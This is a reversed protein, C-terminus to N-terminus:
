RPGPGLVLGTYAVAQTGTRTFQITLTVTAGAGISGAEKYPSGAPMTASTYGSPQVMAVGAPLSEAVYAAATLAAGNNTLKVTQSYVGSVRNLTVASASVSVETAVNDPVSSLYTSWNSKATAAFAQLQSYDGGWTTYMLGAVGPIGAAQQLEQAAAAAGNGSDYYGAIIQRYPTPQQANRGSFWNLSNALNSLNWNMITVNAPVGTWSGTLNGEVYYYNNVANQYPDFMDNWVYLLASPALTHYLNTTNSVHWALLQGPTMNKAKCSACSDMHRMEDYSLLYNMGAPMNSVINQANTQLFNQAGTETLCMGVDGYAAIPQVAYYNMAVTQGPQLSTTSPLTVTGPSHYFNDFVGTAQLQPDAIPNFDSGEQYVASPNAPNYATLPTGPRRLVYVLSTEEVLVDDFWISGSSGGWVGFLLSPQTTGRSNFTFDLETWDQTSAQEIPTNFCLTNTSPDWVEIQSYGSFNATKIWIRAHYQRWPTVNMTQAFRANGAANTIYGAASGSHVVTTEVGMNSDEYGFWGTLGSEFGPNVLGGFSNVPALATKTANVTFQSGILQEGEAWNPNTILADDSFGYPAVTGMTKMGKAQAYSVLQQMYAVNNAPHVPSGMFNFTSSWFAVGTYGYSLAQNIQAEIASVDSASEPYASQWYWLEPSNSQGFASTLLFSLLFVRIIVTFSRM